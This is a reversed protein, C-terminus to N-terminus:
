FGGCQGQKQDAVNGGGQIGTNNACQLDGSVTNFFVQTLGKNTQDQLNGLITNGVISTSASNSQVQMNGGISNGPCSIPAVAGVLVATGNNQLQLNGQVATGCVQDQGSGSPVDQIQLNGNIASGPGISFTSKGNVQVNGGVRSQFLVLSGGIQQVNGTVQGSFFICTQGASVFLNGNFTGNYAGNCTTGSSPAPGTIPLHQYAGIDCAQDQPRPIGRQDTTIPNGAADTCASLPIADVAPSAALLAITQTPGGNNQLGSPDLGAPTSNLSGPGSFACSADDALNYGDSIIAGSFDCNPGGPSNAVISNKVTFGAGALNGALLGDGGINGSLTSNIITATGGIIGGTFGSNGSLTSNTLTLTGSNNLSDIGGGTFGSNGSLTSNSITATGQNEIGGGAGDGFNGSLTSNIVTLMGSNFIGGGFDDSTANSSLRSYSVTLTGANYIGGGDGDHARNGSLTSNFVTVTGANYIGGGRGGEFFGNDSLTSNIVNLTGANYIGGGERASFFSLNGSVSSNIVTLTGANYVGGGNGFDSGREITLGAITATVGASVSFVQFAAITNGTGSIALESSGPGRITLDKTISLTSSLDITAPCTLDFEITDGPSAAAIADRLSGPGSDSTNTVTRTAAFGFETLSLMGLNLVALKLLRGMQLM